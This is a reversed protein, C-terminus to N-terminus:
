LVVLKKTDKLMGAKIHYFYIGPKVNRLDVILSNEGYNRYENLLTAVTTGGANKLYIEVQEPSNLYFSITTSDKAPNPYCSNMKFRQMIFDQVEVPDSVIKLDDGRGKYEGKFILGDTSDVKSAGVCFWQKLISAYVQRYDYQMDVNGKTMDPGNGYVGPSVNKGIIFMPAGNGHDTGASGNSYVRRGFESTTMTLVRDDIGRAKLDDQFSRMAQSIHYLLAAHSGMTKDAKDVQQAHTDFGGIKILYIKTKCGGHILNAIIKLERAIPNKLNPARFPYVEPYTVKPDLQKGANYTALLRDDYEDTKQELSLIYSLEKYYASDALSSPPIGRPDVGIKDDFGELNEVLNFFSPPDYISISTTIDEDQHFLLSQENGFELALPDLNNNNPFDKPYKLPNVSDILYRGAWGSTLYDFAGGGMYFIDRSRFHSGNNFEYSVGQILKLKGEDYLSKFGGMDPHLGVLQNDGLTSDLNLLKRSSSSDINPLAINPRASQYQPYQAVPVATNVGDNGGLMQLIILVRDSGCEMAMQQLANSPEAWVKFPINELIFAGAGFVSLDKIFKRRKM